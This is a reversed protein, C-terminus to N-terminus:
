MLVLKCVVGFSPKRHKPLIPFPVVCLSLFPDPSGCPSVSTRPSPNNLGKPYRKSAQEVAVNEKSRTQPKRRGRFTEVGITGPATSGVSAGRCRRPPFVRVAAATCFIKAVAAGSRLSFLAKCGGPGRSVGLSSEGNGDITVVQISRSTGKKRERGPLGWLSKAKSSAGCERM